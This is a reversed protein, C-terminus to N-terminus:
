DNAHRMGDPMVPPTPPFTHEHADWGAQFNRFDEPWGYVREDEPTVGLHEAWAVRLADHPDSSVAHRYHALASEARGNELDARQNMGHLKQAIAALAYVITQDRMTDRYTEVAAREFSRLAAFMSALTDIPEM